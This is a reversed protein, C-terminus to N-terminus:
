RRKRGPRAEQLQGSSSPEVQLSSSPEVQLSSVAAVQLSSVAAVQLSSVAQLSVAAVQLSPEVQLSSPVVQLSSPEGQLSPELVAQSSSSPEVELQPVLSLEAWQAEFSLRQQETQALDRDPEQCRRAWLSHGPYLFCHRRTSPIAM